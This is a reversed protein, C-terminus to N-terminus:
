SHSRVKPMATALTISPDITTAATTVGQQGDDHRVDEQIEIETGQNSAKLIKSLAVRGTGDFLEVLDGVRLRAARVHRHLPRPAVFRRGTHPIADVFLRKLLQPPPMFLSVFRRFVGCTLHFSVSLSVRLYLRVSSPAPSSSCQYKLRHHVIILKHPGLHEAVLNRHSARSACSPSDVVVIFHM